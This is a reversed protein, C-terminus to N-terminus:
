ESQINQGLKGESMSHILIWLFIKEINQKVTSNEQHWYEWTVYVETEKEEQVSHSLNKDFYIQTRITM